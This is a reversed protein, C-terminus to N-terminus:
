KMEKAKKHAAKVAAKFGGKKWNGNKLKYKPAISKFAKKYKRQYATTRKRGPIPSGTAHLEATPVDPMEMAEQVDKVNGGSRSQSVFLLRGVFTCSLM